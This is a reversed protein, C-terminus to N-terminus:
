VQREQGRANRRGGRFVMQRIRYFRSSTMKRPQPLDISAGHMGKTWSVKGEKALRKAHDYARRNLKVTM